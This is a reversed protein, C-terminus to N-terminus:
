DKLKSFSYLKAPRHAGDRHTRKLDKLVFEQEAKKRFNRKDLAKGLVAEFVEQLDSLTFAHAVLRFAIDSSWLKKGLRTVAFRVIEAHDFALSPLKRVAHWSFTNGHQNKLADRDLLAFYVVTIARIRTDRELDQGFAYLQELYVEGTSIRGKLELAKKATTEIPEDYRVFRGPLAHKGFYPDEDRKVLGVELEGDRMALLVVDVAVAPKQAAIIPDAAM